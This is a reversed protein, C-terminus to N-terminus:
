RYRDNQLETKSEAPLRPIRKDATQQKAPREHDIKVTL